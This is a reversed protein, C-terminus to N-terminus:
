NKKITSKGETPSWKLLFSKMKEPDPEGGTELKIMGQSYLFTGDKELVYFHPIGEVKPYLSLAKANKNDTSYFVAVTVFNRERLNVVEPNKEFFKDLVHCWQCWDGGVDLIIRKGTRQAEAIAAQIDAVADRKPDFKHVPVYASGVVETSVSADKRTPNASSLPSGGSTRLENNNQAFSLLAAAIVVLATEFRLRM